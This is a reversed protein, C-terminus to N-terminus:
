LLLGSIFCAPLLIALDLGQVILTTYHEVALPIEGSASPAVIQLWLLAITISNLILVGGLFKVPTKESFYSDLATIKFSMLVLIFAFFSCSLIAIYVLFLQNFMAMVTYFLYTVLFYGLVGALLFRGKMSSKNAWLLSFILLPVGIGLTVIDQAIGQPAVDASMHQYIGKGYILVQNGRISTFESPGPGGRSFIGTLTALLSLTSIIIVLVTISKKQYM